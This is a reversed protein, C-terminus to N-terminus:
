SIKLIGIGAAGSAIAFPAYGLVQETVAAAVKVTGGTVTSAVIPQGAVLLAGATVPAVGGTQLWGYVNADTSTALCLGKVAVPTTTAVVVGDFESKRLALTSLAPIAVAVPEDLFVTVVATAAAETNGIITYQTGLAAGTQVTVTGGAYQDATIPTAGNTISLTKDGVLAATAIVLGSHAAIVAPAQFLTSSAPAEAFFAYRYSNGDTDLIETGLTAEKVASFTRTTLPAVNAPGTFRAM